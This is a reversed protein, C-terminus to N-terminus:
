RGPTRNLTASVDDHLRSVGPTLQSAITVVVRSTCSPPAVAASAITRTITRNVARRRWREAEISTVGTLVWHSVSCRTSPRSRNEDYPEEPMSRKPMSLRATSASTTGWLSSSVQVPDVTAGIAGSILLRVGECLVRVRTVALADGAMSNTTRRPARRRNSLNM